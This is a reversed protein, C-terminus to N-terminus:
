SLQTLKYEKWSMKKPKKFDKKKRKNDKDEMQKKMATGGKNFEQGTTKTYMYGQQGALRDGELIKKYIKEGEEGRLKVNSLIDIPVYKHGLDELASIRHSGDHGSNLLNYTM